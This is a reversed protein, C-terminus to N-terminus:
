FIYVSFLSYKHMSYLIMNNWNTTHRTVKWKHIDMWTLGGPDKYRETITEITTVETPNFHYCIPDNRRTTQRLCGKCIMTVVLLVHKSDPCNIVSLCIIYMCHFAWKLNRPLFIHVNFQFVHLEVSFDNFNFKLYPLIAFWFLKLSFKV